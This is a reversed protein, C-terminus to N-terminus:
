KFIELNIQPRRNFIRLVVVATSVVDTVMQFTLINKSPCIQGYAEKLSLFMLTRPKHESAVYM